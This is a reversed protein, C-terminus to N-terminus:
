ERGEQQVLYAWPAVVDMLLTLLALSLEETYFAGLSGHLNVFNFAKAKNKKQRKMSSLNQKKGLKKLRQSIHKETGVTGFLRRKRKIWFSLMTVQAM